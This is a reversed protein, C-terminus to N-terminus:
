KGLALAREPSGTAIVEAVNLMQVILPVATLKLALPVHVKFKLSAPLGVYAAAAWTWCVNATPPETIVAVRFAVPVSVVLEGEM